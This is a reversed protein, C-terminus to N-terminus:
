KWAISLEKLGFSVKAQFLLSPKTCCCHVKVNIVGGFQISQEISESGTAGDRRLLVPKSKVEFVM